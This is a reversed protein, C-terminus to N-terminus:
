YKKDNLLSYFHLHIFPNDFLGTRRSFMTVSMLGATIFLQHGSTVKGEHIDM